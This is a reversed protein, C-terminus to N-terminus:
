KGDRRKAGMHEAVNKAKWLLGPHSRLKGQLDRDTTLLDPAVSGHDNLQSLFELENTRFPLVIALHERCERILETTWNEAADRDPILDGRLM